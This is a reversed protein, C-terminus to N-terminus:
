EMPIYSLVQYRAATWPPSGRTPVLTVDLSRKGATVSAPLLYTDDLWRHSPNGLPELWVGIVQGDVLVTASQYSERQDSTRRLVVGANDPSTTLALHVPASTTQVPMTLPAPSGDNGEYTSTLSAAGPAAVSDEVRLQPRDQGYWFATSSYTAQVDDHGGHEIGLAISSAFPVAEALLTRYADTCDLSGGCARTGHENAPEGSMPDTFMGFDFYWGGGFFDETGTGPVQPTRSGDVAIRENGELYVRSRPGRLTASVGVLKGTGTADLIGYDVGGATPAAHSDARFYGAAQSAGLWADWRPDPAATVEAHVVALAGPSGNVLEVTARSRYPMPWWASFWGSRAPDMAFMLAAVRGDGLGSGFFQALPADATRRGDFTLRLRLGRLVDGSTPPPLRLRLADITGPGALDALVASAGAELRVDRSSTAAGPHAPKPDAVGAARLKAVVDLARDTADFTRVGAADAFVRYTVQYYIPDVDTVVRMSARFPMPVLVVNGGSSRAADAVLPFVFPPGLAGDVLAQLSTYLVTRGDLEVEISGTRGVAGFDRTFWMRDIEGPGSHEALVCGDPALRLCHSFDNNREMRDFSSFQRTEVGRSLVPLLDLRRYLDWGVPGKGTLAPPPRPPPPAVPHDRPTLALSAIIALGAALWRAPTL